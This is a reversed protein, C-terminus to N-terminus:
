ANEVTYPPYEISLEDFMDKNYLLTVTGPAFFQGAAKRQLGTGGTINWTNMRVRM